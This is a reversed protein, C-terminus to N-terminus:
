LFCGCVLTQEFLDAAYKADYQPAGSIGTIAAYNTFNDFCIAPTARPVTWYNQSACLGRPVLLGAMQAISHGTKAEVCFFVTGIELMAPDKSPNSAPAPDLPASPYVKRWPPINLPPPQPAPALRERRM